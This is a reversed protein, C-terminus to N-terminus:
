AALAQPLLAYFTQLSHAFVLPWLQRWRWYVFGYLLGMAFMTVFGNSGMAVHLFGRFLAAAFITFWMGFAQLAQFFYGSEIAEEFLPNVRALLVIFPLSLHSVSNVSVVITWTELGEKRTLREPAVGWFGSDNMWSLVMAGFGIACFIYVPNYPLAGNSILASIMAATTLM